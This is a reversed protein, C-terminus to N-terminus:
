AGSGASSGASGAGYLDPHLLRVLACLIAHRAYETRTLVGLSLKGINGIGLGSPGSPGSTEDGRREAWLEDFLGGIPSRESASRAACRPPYAFGSSLGLSTTAGDTVAACGVNLLEPPDCALDPLAVLGDEYGIGLDCAGLAFARMARNRAGRAIEAFGVPQDSVGSEVAAGEVQAGPAYARIADAAAAIKPGNTTGVRVRRVGVLAHATRTV